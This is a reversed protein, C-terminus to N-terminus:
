YVYGFLVEVTDVWGYKISWGYIGNLVWLSDVYQYVKFNTGLGSAAPGLM